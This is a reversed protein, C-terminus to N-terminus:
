GDFKKSITWLTDGPQVTYVKSDATVATTAHSTKNSAVTTTTKVTGKPYINLRQGININSSKLNNWKKIDNVSVRHRLAISGLVDGSKVKYVIRDGYTAGEASQALLELERKGVKSASDLIALRNEMLTEKANAPILMAY